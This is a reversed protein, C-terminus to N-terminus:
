VAAEAPLRPSEGRRRQLRPIKENTSYYYWLQQSFSFNPDFKDAM